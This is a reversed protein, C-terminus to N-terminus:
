CLGFRPGELHGMPSVNYNPYDLMQGGDVYDWLFNFKIDHEQEPRPPYPEKALTIAPKNDVVLALPHPEENTLEGLLRQLWM